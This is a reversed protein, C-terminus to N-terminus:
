AGLTAAYAVSFHDNCHYLAPMCTFSTDAWPVLFPTATMPRMITCDLLSCIAFFHYMGVYQRRVSDLVTLPSASMGCDGSILHLLTLIVTVSCVHMVDTSTFGRRQPLYTNSPWAKQGRQHAHSGQQGTPVCHLLWMLLLTLLSLVRLELLSPWIHESCNEKSSLM